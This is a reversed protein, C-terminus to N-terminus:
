KNSKKINKLVSDKYINIKNKLEDSYSISHNSYIVYTNKSKQESSSSVKQIKNVSKNPNNKKIINVCDDSKSVDIRNRKM